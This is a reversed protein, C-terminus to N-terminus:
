KSRIGVLVGDRVVLREEKTERQNFMRGVDRLLDKVNGMFGKPPEEARILRGVDQDPALIVKELIPWVEDSQSIQAITHWANEVFTSETNSLFFFTIVFFIIINGAIITMLTIFGWKRDTAQVLDFTTISAPNVAESYSTIHDYYAMRWVLTTLAQIALAPSNTTNIIDNFIQWILVSALLSLARHVSLAAPLVFPWIPFTLM